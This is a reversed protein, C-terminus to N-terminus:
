SYSGGGLRSGRGPGKGILDLIWAENPDAITVFEGSSYYGYKKVLGTMVKIAERATKARELALQMLSGYDIIGTTDVIRSSWGM